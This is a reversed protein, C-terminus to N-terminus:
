SLRMPMLVYLFPTDCKLVGPSLDDTLELYVEDFGISKLPDLLFEPNFAIALEKGSYKVPISELAEGVEPTTASVEITNKRVSLKISNSKDSTMLAVRRTATLLAEREVAVREECHSPIVQKFNPYTGEILKSVILMDGRGPSEQAGSTFEFAVQNDTVQIKVPGEDGL